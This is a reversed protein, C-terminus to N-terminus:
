YLECDSEVRSFARSSWMWDRTSDSSWRRWDRSDCIRLSRSAFNDASSLSCPPASFFGPLSFTWFSISTSLRRSSAIGFNISNSLSTSFALSLTTLHKRKFHTRGELLLIPSNNLSVLAVTISCRQVAVLFDIVELCLCPPKLSLKDDPRNSPIERSPM